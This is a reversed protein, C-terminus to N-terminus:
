DLGDGGMFLDLGGGGGKGGGKALHVGVQTSKISNDEVIMPDGGQVGVGLKDEPMVQAVQVHGHGDGHPIISLVIKTQGVGDTPVGGAIPLHVNQPCTLLTEGPEKFTLSLDQEGSNSGGGM